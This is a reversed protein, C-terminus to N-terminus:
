QPRKWAVIPLMIPEHSGVGCATTIVCCLVFGATVRLTAFAVPVTRASAPVFVALLENRATSPSVGAPPAAVPPTNWDVALAEFQVARLVPILVDSTSLM